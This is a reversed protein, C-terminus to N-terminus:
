RCYVVIGLSEFNYLLTYGDGYQTFGRISLTYNSKPALDPFVLYNTDNASTFNLRRKTGILILKYGLLVGAHKKPNSSIREWRVM